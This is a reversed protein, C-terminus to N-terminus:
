NWLVMNFNFPIECRRPQKEKTFGFRRYFDILRALDSGLEATALLYIPRHQCKSLAKTMLKTAYGQGRYEPEIYLMDLCWYGDHKTICIRGQKTKMLM